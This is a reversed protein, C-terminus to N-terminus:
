LKEGAEFLPFVNELRPLILDDVYKKNLEIGIFNREMRLSVEGTTGSGCFPDLVTDGKKTGASICIKPIESPFTAFHAGKYSETNISWVDRKNRAPYEKDPLGEARRKHMTNPEQGDPELNKMTHFNPRGDAKYYGSHGKIGQGNKANLTSGDIKKFQGSDPYKSNKNVRQRLVGLPRKDNAYSDSVPELIAEYDYYYKASKTLLYIMEHSKTPRDTVSEPMPNSNKTCIGSALAFSHPNEALSVNWFKRARSQRIAVVEGDSNRRDSPNMVIDGRWIKHKKSTTTNIAVGRRLRLSGGLRAALTRLDATLQDNNCFGLKWSGNERQSGDGELYGDLLARLFDNSREWCRSHLHKDHANGGIIYTEVLANLILGNINSTLGNPSTNHISCHGHFSEAIRKLRDNRMTEKIHGSFQMTGDSMSGEALYMGVFWGADCDPLGVPKVPNLPEPLSTWQIIDGIQIQNAPVDGRQTPWKHNRTCGVREGNRFELEIDGEVPLNVGRYKASRKRQSKTKRNEIPSVEGWEVVQNWKEGDWLQVTAPNLRVLDKLTAPMEGKQTKAYLRAGGSLCKKWVIESRLYWGDAQLALAVRAPIMCLDKSKLGFPIDRKVPTTGIPPMASQLTSKDRGGTAGNGGTGNNAYTDGLNLWVTGDERLVRKVERFVEVLNKVYLEPTPEGGLEGKWAGCLSCINTPELNHQTGSSTAQKSSQDVVDKESRRRRPPASDWQHECNKDGGWIQHVTSYNRLGWFPPSTCVCQVSESGIKSLGSLVDENYIKFGM